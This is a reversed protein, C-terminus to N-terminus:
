NKVSGDIAVCNNIKGANRLSASCKVRMPLRSDAANISEPDLEVSFVNEGTPAEALIEGWPGAVLSHGYADIGTKRNRGCQNPAILFCQNEIARARTLVHWHDRGTELTFDSPALFANCGAAAYYRYLEPFRLDYCISLGIKWGEIELIEPRNGASCVRSESVKEEGERYLSFLNIKRYTGALEGARNYVFMTKYIDGGEKEMISGGVLWANLNQAMGSLLRAAPGDGRSEATNRYDDDSGRCSFVEPLVILDTEGIDRLLDHIRDMNKQQEPLSDLQVLTIHLPKM